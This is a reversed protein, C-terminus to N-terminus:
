EDEADSFFKKLNSKTEKYERMKESAIRKRKQKSSVNIEFESEEVNMEKELAIETPRKEDKIFVEEHMNELLEEEVELAEDELKDILKEDITGESFSKFINEFISEDEESESDEADENEIANCESDVVDDTNINKRNTKTYNRKLHNEKIKEKRKKIEEEKTKAAKIFERDTLINGSIVFRNTKKKNNAQISIPFTKLFEM